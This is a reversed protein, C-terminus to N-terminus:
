GNYFHALWHFLKTWHWIAGQTAGWAQWVCFAFCAALRIWELWQKRQLLSWLIVIAVPWFLALGVHCLFFGMVFRMKGLPGAMPTLSWPIFDWFPGTLGAIVILLAIGNSIKVGMTNPMTDDNERNSDYWIKEVSARRTFM